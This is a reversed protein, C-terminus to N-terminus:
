EGGYSISRLEDLKGELWDMWEEPILGDEPVDPGDYDDLEVGELESIMSEGEDRRSELMTGTPGYQFNEELNDFSDGAQEVLQNALTSM